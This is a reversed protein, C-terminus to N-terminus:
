SSTMQQWSISISFNQVPAMAPERDTVGSASYRGTAAGTRVGAIPSQSGHCTRFVLSASAPSAGSCASGMRRAVAPLLLCLSVANVTLL